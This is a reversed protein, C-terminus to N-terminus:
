DTPPPFPPRGAHTAQVRVDLYGEDLIVKLEQGVAVARASRLIKDDHLTLSYGRTLVKLPSLADLRATLQAWRHRAPPPRRQMDASLAERLQALRAAESQLRREFAAGLRQGLASLQQRNQAVRASPDLASLRTKLDSFRRHTQERQAQMARDLQASHRELLRRPRELSVARDLHRQQHTLAQRAHLWRGYLLGALRDHHSRLDTYLRVREPVVREAAASPTAARLDAVYDAITWDTEHGVASIVPRQCEVIARIIPEENFVWLDEASGGGRALIIVDVQPQQALLQFARVISPAARDGQVTAPALLIPIQPSRRHLVTEIDRRVAGSASTIVGVARPLFPLPRPHTKRYHDGDPRILQAKLLRDVMAKREAEKAGHGAWEMHQVILRYEGRPAYLEIKGFIRVQKGSVFLHEVPKLTSRWIIGGLRAEGQAAAAPTNADPKGQVLDFYGASNYKKCASLEGEVWVRLFNQEIMAKLQTTLEFVSLPKAPNAPPAGATPLIPLSM